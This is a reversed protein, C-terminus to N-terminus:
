GDILHGSGVSKVYEGCSSDCLWKSIVVLCDISYPASERLTLRPCLRAISFLAAAVWLEMSLHALGDFVFLGFGCGFSNFCIWVVWDLFADVKALGVELKTVLGAEALDAAGSKILITVRSISLRALFLRRVAGCVFLHSLVAKQLLHLRRSVNALQRRHPM